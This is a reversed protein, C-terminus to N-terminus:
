NYNEFKDNIAFNHYKRNGNEITTCVLFCKKKFKSAICSIFGFWWLPHFISVHANKGNPLIKDAPYCAVNLFVVKRSFDFIEEIVWSLDEVPIHELVDISIVIDFNKHSPKEYPVGPDFLIPDINWFKKLPPYNQELFKSENFYRDGKGSGYDLLTKLKNKEIIKKIIEVFVMTSIGNYVMSPDDGDIGEKHIKKYYKKLSLFNPSPNKSNYM